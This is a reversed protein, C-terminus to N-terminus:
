VAEMWKMRISAIRAALRRDACNILPLDGYHASLAGIFADISANGHHLVRARPILARAAWRDAAAEDRDHTWRTKHGAHSRLHALEHALIWCQTLYSGAAPVLVVPPDGDEGAVYLGSEIAAWGVVAGRAEVAAVLDDLSPYRRGFWDPSAVKRPIGGSDGEM